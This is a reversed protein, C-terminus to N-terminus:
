SCRSRPFLIGPFTQTSLVVLTFVRRGRFGYRSVAYAIFTAVLVSLAAASPGGRIGHDVRLPPPVTGAPTPPAAVAAV